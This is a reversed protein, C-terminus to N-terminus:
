KSISLFCPEACMEFRGVWRCTHFVEKGVVMGYSQIWECVIADIDKAEKILLRMDNNKTESAGGVIERGEMVVWGSTVNGPDIAMVRM